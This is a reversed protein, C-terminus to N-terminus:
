KKMSDPGDDPVVARRGSKEERKGREEDEAADKRFPNPVHTGFVAM